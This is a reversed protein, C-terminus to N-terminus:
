AVTLSATNTRKKEPNENLDKFSVDPPLPSWQQPYMKTAEYDLNGKICKPHYRFTPKKSKTMKQYPKELGGIGALHLFSFVQEQELVNSANKGASKTSRVSRKMYGIKRELTRASFCRPPGLMEIMHPIHNLAHLNFTYMTKSICKTSILKDLYDFWDKYLSSSLYILLSTLKLLFLFPLAHDISLYRKIERLDSGSIEWQLSLLSARILKNVNKAAEKSKFRPTILSSSAYLFQEIWDTSRYLARSNAFNVGKWNSNFRTPIDQTSKDISKKVIELDNNSL